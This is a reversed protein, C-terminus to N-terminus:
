AGIRGKGPAFWRHYWLQISRTLFGFRQFLRQARCNRGQTVVIVKKAGQESLWRLSASMIENGVGQGQLERLVGALDLQGTGPEPLHLTMYGVARGGVEAVLVGGEGGTCSKEVWTEYLADCREVPFNGDYYFRSDRHSVRAIAKLAPVDEPKVLRMRCVPLIASGLASPNLQTDLTMRVDVLRFGSSEALRTTEANDADALFYLCNIAQAHCWEFAVPLVQATLRPVTLRAIRVGFFDSDWDLYKCLGAANKESM